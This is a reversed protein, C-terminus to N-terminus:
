ARELTTVAVLSLLVVGGIAMWLPDVTELLNVGNQVKSLSQAVVADTVNEAGSFRGLFAPVQLAALVAGATGVGALVIRRFLARRRIGTMVENVFPAADLAKDEAAFLDTLDTYTDEERMM